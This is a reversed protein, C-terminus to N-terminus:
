GGIRTLRADLDDIDARLQAPSSRPLPGTPVPGESYYMPVPCPNYCPVPCPNYCPTPCVHYSPTPCPSYCPTYCVRGRRGNAEAAGAACLLLVVAALLGSSKKRM